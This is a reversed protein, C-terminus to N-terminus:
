IMKMTTKRPQSELIETSTKFRRTYDQLSESEKQKSNFVARFADLIISMEYRTEQYNLSHEKIARLLQIPDNYVTTDYDSRSGIKSQMAKACREWLLAYAKFTNDEYM